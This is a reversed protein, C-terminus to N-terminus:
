VHDKWRPSTAEAPGRLSDALLRQVPQLHLCAEADATQRLGKGCTNRCMSSARYHFLGLATSLITAPATLPSTLTYSPPRRPLPLSSSLLSTHPRGHARTWSARGLPTACWICQATLLISNCLTPLTCTCQDQVLDIGPVAISCMTHALYHAWHGFRSLTRM